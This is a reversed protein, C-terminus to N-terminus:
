LHPVGEHLAPFAHMHIMAEHRKESVGLGKLALGANHFGDRSQVSFFGPHMIGSQPRSEPDHNFSNLSTSSSILFLISM